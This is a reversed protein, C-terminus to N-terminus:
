GVKRLGIRARLDALEDVQARATASAPVVGIKTIWAEYSSRPAFWRRQLKIAGEVEGDRAARYSRRKGPPASALDVLTETPGPTLRSALKAEIRADILREIAQALDITRM